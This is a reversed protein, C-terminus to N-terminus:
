SSRIMAEVKSRAALFRTANPVEALWQKALDVRGRRTAQFMAAQLALRECASPEAYGSYRFATELLKGAKVDDHQSYAALFAVTHAWVTDPSDDRLLTARELDSPSLSEIPVSREMEDTLRLIALYRQARAPQVLLMWIREGDTLQSTIAVPLLNVAAFFFSVGIFAGSILSPNQLLRLVGYGAIFNAAPGALLMLTMRLKIDKGPQPIMVTEGLRADESNRDLSVRFSQDIRFRGFRIGRCRFGLSLGALLHGCEHVAIALLCMLVIAFGTLVLRLGAWDPDRMMLM